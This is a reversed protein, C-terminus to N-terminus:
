HNKEKDQHLRQLHTTTQFTYFSNSPSMFFGPITVFRIKKGSPFRKKEATDFISKYGSHIIIFM